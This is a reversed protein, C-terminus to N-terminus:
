WPSGEPGIEQDEYSDTPPEEEPQSQNQNEQEKENDVKQNGMSLNGSSKKAEDLRKGGNQQNEIQEFMTSDRMDEHIAYSAKESKPLLKGAQILVTKKWQNLEPDNKPKWPSDSYEFSKSFQEGHKMIDEGNMYKSKEPGNNVSYTVYAGIAEGRKAKSKRPDVEHVVEGSVMKFKDKDRVIDAYLSTVKGQYLLSVLGKYGLQFQATPIGKIKYVIVYAEGSVASPKFGCSAMVLYSNILSKPTATLLKPNRQVDMMVGSMFQMAMEKRGGFFNQITKTYDVALIQKLDKESRISTNALDYKGM